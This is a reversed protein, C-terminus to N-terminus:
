LSPWEVPDAGTLDPQIKEVTVVTPLKGNALKRQNRRRIKCDKREVKIEQKRLLQRECKEADMLESLKRENVSVDNEWKFACRSRQLTRKLEETDSIIGLLRREETSHLNKQETNYTQEILLKCKEIKLRNLIVLCTCEIIDENFNELLTNHRNIKVRVFKLEDLIEELNSEKPIRVPLKEFTRTRMQNSRKCINYSTDAESIELELKALKRPIYRKQGALTISRPILPIIGEKKTNRNKSGLNKVFFSFIWGVLVEPLPVRVSSNLAHPVNVTETFAIIAEGYENIFHQLVKPRLHMYGYSEKLARETISHRQRSM